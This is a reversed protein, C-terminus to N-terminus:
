SAGPCPSWRCLTFTLTWRGGAQQGAPLPGPALAASPRATMGQWDGPRHQRWVRISPRWPTRDKDVPWRWDPDHKVLLWVPRGLAGALHATMTDVTVVLSAGAILRATLGMDMPCTPPGASWVSRRSAACPAF